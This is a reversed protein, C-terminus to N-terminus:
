NGGDAAGCSAAAGGLGAPVGGRLEGARRRFGIGDAQCGSAFSEACQVCQENGGNAAHREVAADGIRFLDAFEM